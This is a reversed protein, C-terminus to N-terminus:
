KGGGIPLTMGALKRRRRQLNAVEDHIKFLEEEIDEQKKIGDIVDRYLNNKKKRWKVIEKDIIFVYNKKIKNETEIVEKHKKLFNKFFKIIWIRFRNM